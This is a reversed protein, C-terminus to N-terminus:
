LGLDAELQAIRRDFDAKAALAAAARQRAKGSEEAQIKALHSLASQYAEAITTEVGFAHLNNSSLMVMWGYQGVNNRMFFQVRVGSFTVGEPLATLFTFDSPSALLAQHTM